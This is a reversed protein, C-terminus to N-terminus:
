LALPQEAVYLFTSRVRPFVTRVPADLQNCKLGWPDRSRQKHCLISLARCCGYVLSKLFEIKMWYIQLEKIIQRLKITIPFYSKMNKSLDLQGLNKSMISGFIDEQQKQRIAWLSLKRHRLASYRRLLWGTLLVCTVPHRAAVYLCLSRVHMQNASMQTNM